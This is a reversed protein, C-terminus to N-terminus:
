DDVWLYLIIIGKGVVSFRFSISVSILFAKSKFPIVSSQQRTVFVKINQSMAYSSSLHVPLTVMVAYEALNGHHQLSLKASSTSSM